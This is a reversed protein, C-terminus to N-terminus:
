RHSYVSFLNFRNINPISLMGEQHLLCLEGIDVQGNLSEASHFQKVACSLFPSADLSGGKCKQASRNTGIEAELQVGV